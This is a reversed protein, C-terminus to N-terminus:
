KDLLSKWEEPTKGCSSSNKWSAIGINFGKILTISIIDYQNINPETELITKIVSRTVKINELEDINVPLEKVWLQIVLSETTSKSEGYVTSTNKSVGANLVGDINLISKQIAILDAFSSNAPTVGVITFVTLLFTLFGFIYYSAKTVNPIETMDETRVTSVVYSGIILDHLSQRNGKNFIYIVIVGLMLSMCSIIKLYFLDSGVQAGPVEVNILFYPVCLILARLFSRQLSLTNGVKDVVQISMAKKGPTQGNFLKSNYITFYLVAILLGILVGYSGIRILFDQITLGLIIGIVGLIITDIVLAGIRNWFKSILINTEM